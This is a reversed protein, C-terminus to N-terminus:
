EFEIQVLNSKAEGVWSNVDIFYSNAIEWKTIEDVSDCQINLIYDQGLWDHPTLLYGFSNEKYTAVVFYEGVEISEYEGDGNVDVKPIESNFHYTVFEGPSLEIFEEFSKAFKSPVSDSPTNMLPIIPIDSGQDSLLMLEINALLEYFSLSYPERILLSNQSLNRLEVKISLVYNDRLVKSPSVEISEIELNISDEYKSERSSVTAAWENFPVASYDESHLLDQSPKFALASECTFSQDFDLTTDQDSM